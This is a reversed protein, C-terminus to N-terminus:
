KKYSRSSCLALTSIDWPSYMGHFYGLWTYQPHISILLFISSWWLALGVCQFPNVFLNLSACWVAFFMSLSKATYLLLQEVPPLLVGLTTSGAGLASVTASGYRLSPCGRSSEISHWCAAMATATHRLCRRYRINQKQRNNIGPTQLTTLPQQFILSM